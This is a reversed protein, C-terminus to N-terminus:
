KKILGFLNRLNDLTNFVQVENEDGVISDIIKAADKATITNNFSVNPLDIVPVGYHSSVDDIRFDFRKTATNGRSNITTFATQLLEPTIGKGSIIRGLDGRLKQPLSTDELAEEASVARGIDPVSVRALTTALNYRLTDNKSVANWDVSGDAKIVGQAEMDSILTDQYLSITQAEKYEPSAFVEKRAETTMQQVAQVRAADQSAKISANQLDLGMKQYDLGTRTAWQQFQQAEVQLKFGEGLFSGGISMAENFSNTDTIAKIQEGTAGYQAATIAINKISEQEKLREQYNREETAIKLQFAKDQASTLAQRNEQYFMQDFQLQFQLPELKAKIKRDINTSISDFRRLRASEIISLDALERAADRNLAQVRRAIQTGSLGATKQTDEVARRLSMERAEIQSQIDSVDLRAQGLGESKEMEERSGIVDVAERVREELTKKSVDLAKQAKDQQSKAELAIQDITQASSTPPQPVTVPTVPKIDSAPIPQQNLNEEM